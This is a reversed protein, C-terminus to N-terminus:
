QPSGSWASFLASRTGLGAVVERRPGGLFLTSIVLYLINSGGTIATKEHGVGTNLESISWNRRPHSSLQFASWTEQGPTGM